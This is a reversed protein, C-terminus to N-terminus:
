NVKKISVAGSNSINPSANGKYKIDASGSASGTLTREAYVEADGAGSLDLDVNDAKLEFCRIDTSGSGGITLDTTQGKLIIDCSGSVHAKIKPVNLDMTIKCSGSAHLDM